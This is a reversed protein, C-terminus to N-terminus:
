VFYNDQCCTQDHWSFLHPAIISNGRYEMIYSITFIPHMQLCYRYTAPDPDMDALWLGSRFLFPGHGLSTNDTLLWRKICYQGM